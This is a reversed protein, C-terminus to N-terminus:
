GAPAPGLGPPPCPPPPPFGPPHARGGGRRKQGARGRGGGDAGGGRGAREKFLHVDVGGTVGKGDARWLLARPPESELENMVDEIGQGIERTFLNLPPSDFTVVALPGDREPRVPGDAM